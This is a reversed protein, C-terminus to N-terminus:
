ICLSTSRAMVARSENMTVFFSRATSRVIRWLGEELSGIVESMRFSMTAAAETRPEKAGAKLNATM